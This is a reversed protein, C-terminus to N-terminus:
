NNSTHYAASKPANMTHWTQPDRINTLSEEPINVPVYFLASNDQIMELAVRKEFVAAGKMGAIVQYAGLGHPALYLRSKDEGMVCLFGYEM